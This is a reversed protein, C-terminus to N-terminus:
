CELHHSSVVIAPRAERQGGQREMEANRATPHSGLFLLDAGLAATKRPADHQSTGDIIRAVSRRISLSNGAGPAPCAEVPVRTYCSRCGCDHSETILRYGTLDYKAEAIDWPSRGTTGAVPPLAGSSSQRHCRFM